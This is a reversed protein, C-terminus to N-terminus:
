GWFYIRLCAILMLISKSYCITKRSLRKLHTRLSLNKREIHNISYKKTQHITKPILARYINLKDTYVKTPKSLILSETVRRIMKKSRTGVNFALVERTDKRLSYAVWRKCTKNGVFTCLEDVEYEKGHEYKPSIVKESIQLIRKTITTKSIQLIRAISRIGCGEKVLCVIKDDQILYSKYCYTKLQNKHCFKCYYKQKGTRNVGKKICSNQCYKCEM